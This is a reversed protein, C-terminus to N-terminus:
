GCLLFVNYSMAGITIGGSFASLMDILDKYFLNFLFPSSLGGQRTGKSIVFHSSLQNGWKVQVTISRYWSVMMAWSHDPIVGLAKRFLIEHPVADFAGQADLSCAYVPSGRSKCYSIVDQALVAAMNTSRGPVFGFQLDSFEFQGSVDLIYLELLKSLTSSVTM